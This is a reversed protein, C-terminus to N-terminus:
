RGIEEVLYETFVTAMLENLIQEAPKRSHKFDHVAIQLTTQISEQAPKSEEMMTMLKFFDNANLDKINNALKATANM